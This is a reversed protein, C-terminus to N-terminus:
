ATLESRQGAIEPVEVRAWSLVEQPILEENSGVVSLGVGVGDPCTRRFRLPYNGYDNCLRSCKSAALFKADGNQGRWEPQRRAEVADGVRM